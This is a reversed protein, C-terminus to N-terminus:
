DIDESQLERNTNLTRLSIYLYTYGTILYSYAPYNQIFLQGCKNGNWLSSFFYVQAVTLCTLAFSYFIVVGTDADKARFRLFFSYLGSAIVFTNLFALVFLARATKVDTADKWLETCNAQIVM